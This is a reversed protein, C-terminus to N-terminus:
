IDKGIQRIDELEQKLEEIDAKLNKNEEDLDNIMGVYLEKNEKRLIALQINAGASM